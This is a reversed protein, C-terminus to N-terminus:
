TGLKLTRASRNGECILAATQIVVDTSNLGDNLNGVISIFLEKCMLSCVVCHISVRRMDVYVYIFSFSHSKRYGEGSVKYNAWLARLTNTTMKSGSGHRDWFHYLMEGVLERLLILLSQTVEGCLFIKFVQATRM